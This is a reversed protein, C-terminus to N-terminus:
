PHIANPSPAHGERASGAALPAEEEMLELLDGPQCAFYACLRELVDADYRLMRNEALMSLTRRNIGTEDSLRSIFRIGRKGMLELLRCRIMLSRTHGNLKRNSM